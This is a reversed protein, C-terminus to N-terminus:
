INLGHTQNPSQPNALVFGTGNTGDRSGCGEDEAFSPPNRQKVWSSRM